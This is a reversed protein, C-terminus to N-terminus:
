QVNDDHIIVSQWFQQSSWWFFVNLWNLTSHITFYHSYILSLTPCAHCCLNKNNVPIRPNNNKQQVHIEDHTATSVSPYYHSCSVNPPEAWPDVLCPDLSGRKQKGQRTWPRGRPQIVHVQHCKYSNYIVIFYPIIFTVWQSVSISKNRPKATIHRITAIYRIHNSRHQSSAKNAGGAFKLKLAKNM